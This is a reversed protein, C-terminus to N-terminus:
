RASVQCAEFSSVPQVRFYDYVGRANRESGANLILGVQLQPPLDGRELRLRGDQVGPTPEREGNGMRATRDTVQQETWDSGPGTRSFFRLESGVRCLRLDRTVGDGDLPTLYLTSLSNYGALNHIHFVGDFPRTTKTEFGFFTQQFGINYMVWRQKLDVSAPDRVLLGASTFTGTPREGPAVRSTATVRTEVMFDGSALVALLTGAADSYWGNDGRDGVVDVVLSGEEFRLPEHADPVVDVLGNLDSDFEAAFGGPGVEALAANPDPLPRPGPCGALVVLISILVTLHQVLLGGPLPFDDFYSHSRRSVIRTGRASREGRANVCERRLSPRTM